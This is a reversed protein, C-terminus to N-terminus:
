LAIVRGRKKCRESAQLMGFLLESMCKRPFGACLVPILRFWDVAVPSGTGTHYALLYMHNEKPGHKCSQGLPPVFCPACLRQLRYRVEKTM